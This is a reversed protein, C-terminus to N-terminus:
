KPNGKEEKEASSPCETLSRSSPCYVLCLPFNREEQAIDTFYFRGRIVFYEEGSVIKGMQERTTAGQMELVFVKEVKAPMCHSVELTPMAGVEATTAYEPADDGVSIQIRAKISWAPTQGANILTINIIPALGSGLFNLEGFQAGVLGLYARQGLYFLNRNEALTDRIATEQDKMARLQGDMKDIVRDTREVSREMSEWQRRYIYAQVAIVVLVSVSLANVTVFKIRESHENVWWSVIILTACAVVGLTIIAWLGPNLIKKNKATKKDASTDKDNNQPM